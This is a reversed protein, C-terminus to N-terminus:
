LEELLRQNYISHPNKDLFKLSICAYNEASYFWWYCFVDFYWSSHHLFLLRHWRHLNISLKISTDCTVDSGVSLSTFFHSYVLIMFKEYAVPSVIKKREYELDVVFIINYIIYINKLAIWYKFLVFIISISVSSLIKIFIIIKFNNKM